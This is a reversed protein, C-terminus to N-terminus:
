LGWISDILAVTSALHKVLNNSNWVDMEALGLTLPFVENQFREKKASFPLRRERATAKNTVLALNGLRNVWKEREEEDPWDKGWAKNSATVPLISELHVIGKDDMLDANGHQALVYANLRKLIAIAVKKGATTSGFESVVLAERLSSKDEQYIASVASAKEESRIADLFDFCKAFRQAAPPKTLAMWMVLQEVGHLYGDLETLTLPKSGESGGARLLLELIIMEAEKTASVNNTMERLFKLRMDISKWVKNGKGRAYFGFLEFEGERYQALSLSAPLVKKLYFIHGEHKNKIVDARLWRELAYVQESKRVKRRMDAAARLFCADSVTSRGVSGNELDSISALKDWADFTKYM